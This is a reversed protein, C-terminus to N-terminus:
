MRRKGPKGTIGSVIRYSLYISRDFNVPLFGLQAYLEEGLCTPDSCRIFRMSVIKHLMTWSADPVFKIHLAPKQRLKWHSIILLKVLKWDDTSM